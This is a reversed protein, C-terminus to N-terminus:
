IDRLRFTDRMYINGEKEYKGMKVAMLTSFCVLM